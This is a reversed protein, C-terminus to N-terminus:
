GNAALKSQIDKLSKLLGRFQRIGLFTSHERRHHFVPRRDAVFVDQFEEEPESWMRFWLNYWSPLSPRMHLQGVKLHDGYFSNKDLGLDAQKTMSGSYHWM